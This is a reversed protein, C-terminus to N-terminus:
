PNAMSTVAAAQQRDSSNSESASSNNPFAVATASFNVVTAPLEVAPLEGSNWAVGCRCIAGSGSIKCTTGSATVAPLAVVTAGVAVATLIV